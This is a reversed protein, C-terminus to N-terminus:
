KATTYTLTSESILENKNKHLKLGRVSRLTQIVRGKSGQIVYYGNDYNYSPLTKFPKNSAMLQLHEVGQPPIVEFEAIEVYHNAQEASIYRVFQENGQGDNLELLYSMEDNEQTIHGIIYYYGPKNLRVFLKVREGIKYYLAESGDQTKLEAHFATNLVVNNNFVNEFEVAAPKSRFAEHGSKEIIVSNRNIVKYDLDVLKYSLYIDGKELIEYEGQLTYKAVKESSVTSLYASMYEKVAHAFPTVEQTNKVRAAQVFIDSVSINKTLVKAAFGLSNAKNGLRKLESKLDNPKIDLRSSSKAGLASAVLRKKDYQEIFGLLEEIVQYRREVPKLTKLREVSQEIQVSLKGLDRKYLPLSIKSDIWVLFRVNGSADSLRQYQGGLIPLDSKTNVKVVSGCDGLNNTCLNVVKFVDIRISSILNELADRRAENATNGYGLGKIKVYASSTNNASKIAPQQEIGASLEDKVYQNKTHSIGSPQTPKSPKSTTTCATLLIAILVAYFPKKLM